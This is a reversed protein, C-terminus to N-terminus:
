LYRTTNVPPEGIAVAVVVEHVVLLDGDCEVSSLDDVCVGPLVSIVQIRQILM